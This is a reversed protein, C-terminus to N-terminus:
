VLGLTEATRRMIHDFFADLDDITNNYQGDLELSIHGLLQTRAMLGAILLSDPVIPPVFERLRKMGRTVKRPVPTDEPTMGRAFGDALIAILTVSVRTGPGITADPAAYGPVPSGYILGWEQPHALAWDRCGNAVAMWRGLLDGRAVSGERADVADGLGNYADIILRTLLDDRSPFYRYVASSVMGLDRAVARLSLGAAGEAELHARATDLIERTLEARARERATRPASTAATDSM